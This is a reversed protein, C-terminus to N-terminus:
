CVDRHTEYMFAAGAHHKKLAVSIQGHIWRSSIADMKEVSKQIHASVDAAIKESKATPIHAAHCAEYISAYIKRADFAEVHGARKVVHRSSFKRGAKKSKTKAPTKTKTATM